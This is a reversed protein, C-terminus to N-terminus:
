TYVASVEKKGIFPKRVATSASSDKQIKGSKIGDEVRERTLILETFGVSSSGIPHNFFPGSLNGLFMDVLERESLPPQVRGALDSTSYPYAGFDLGPVKQIEMASLREELHKYKDDAPPYQEESYDEEKEEEESESPVATEKGKGEGEGSTTAFNLTRRTQGQLRRGMNLVGTVKKTKKKREEALLTKLEEQGMALIM